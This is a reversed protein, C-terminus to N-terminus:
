FPLDSPDDDDMWAPVPEEDKTPRRLAALPANVLCIHRAKTDRGKEITIGKDRLAGAHRKLKGSLTGPTKPWDWAHKTTDDAHVNLEKLLKSATGDWSLKTEMFTIVAAAVHSSEVEQAAAEVRNQGYAREFTGAEWLPPTSETGAVVWTAWDIMRPPNDLRVCDRNALAKVALDLLAGLLAPRAADFQEALEQESKRHEGEIPPFDVIVARDLIDGATALQEIGNIVMPRKASFLVEDSDTYLQKKSDAAGTSLRCLGDSLWRPMSSMNDFAVVWNSNAKLTLDASDRPQVPADATVPDVLKRLYRTATSKASGKEGSLVLLPYPGTPHLCGLLWGVILRWGEMSLHPNLFHRLDDISGGGVPTPLPLQGPPRKFRVPYDTVIDWGEHTIRVVEKGLDLYLTDDQWALRVHVDHTGEGAFHAEAELANQAQELASKNPAVGNDHRYQFTLWLRARQSRVPCHEGTPLTIYAVNDPTRFLPRATGLQVLKQAQTQEEQKESM